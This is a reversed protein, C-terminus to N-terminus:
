LDFIVRARWGTGGPTGAPDPDPGVTLGHYTVAKLLVKLPHRAADREEGWAEAQLRVGGPEDTVTAVARHFLLDEVEFTYLLETLWDVLLLGLDAAALEFRRSLREEVGAVEVMCDTFAPVVEGFLADRSAATVEVGLDATHDIPRYSM